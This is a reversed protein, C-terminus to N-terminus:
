VDEQLPMDIQPLIPWKTVDPYKGPTIRNAEEMDIAIPLRQKFSLLLSFGYSMEYSSHEINPLTGTRAKVIDLSFELPYLSDFVRFEKKRNHM